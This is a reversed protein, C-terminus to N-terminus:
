KLKLKEGIILNNIFIPFDDVKALGIGESTYDSGIVTFIDNEKIAKKM